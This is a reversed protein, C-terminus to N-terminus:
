LPDTIYNNLITGLNFVYLIYCVIGLTLFIILPAKQTLNDFTFIPIEYYDPTYGILVVYLSLIFCLAWIAYSYIDYYLDPILQYKFAYQNISINSILILVPIIIVIFLLITCAKASIRTNDKIFGVSIILILLGVAVCIHSALSLEFNFAVIYTSLILLVFGLFLFIQGLGTGLGPGSM